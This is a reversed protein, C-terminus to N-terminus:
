HVGYKSLLDDVGAAPAPQAPQQSAGGGVQDEPLSIRQNAVQDRARVLKERLELLNRKLADNKQSTNLNAAANRLIDGEKESLAGFGSAGTASLSKLASLTDLVSRNGVTDLQAKADAADTHPIHTAIDGIFTGLSAFGPSAILADIGRISDNMTAVSSDRAQAAKQRKAAIDAQKDLSLAKPQSVVDIKGNSGRQAVTGAPLGLQAVEAPTLQTFSNDAASPKPTGVGFQAPAAQPGPMVPQGVGAPVPAGMTGGQPQAGMQQAQQLLWQEVKAPDAGLQVAQNAQAIFPQMPDGQPPEPQAGGTAPTLTQDNPNFVGAASGHGMPVNPILKPAYPNRYMVEGSGPNVLTQGASTVVGKVDPEGGTAAIAQYLGQEMSPDWQEPAAKGTLQELYPRVAQWAGNIQAPNNTQLAKVMYRAAGGLKKAHDVEAAQQTAQQASDRAALQNGLAIGSHPDTAVAQGLLATRDAGAPATYAQGALRAFRSQLGQQRGLNGQQQVYNAVDMVNTPM